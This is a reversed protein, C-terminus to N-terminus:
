IHLNPLDDGFLFNRNEEENYEEFGFMQRLKEIEQDTLGALLQDLSPSNAECQTQPASSKLAKPQSSKGKKPLM